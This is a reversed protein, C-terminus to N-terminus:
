RRFIVMNFDLLPHEGTIIIIIIIIIPFGM